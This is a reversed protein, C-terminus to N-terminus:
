VKQRLRLLQNNDNYNRKFFYTHMYYKHLFVMVAACCVRYHFVACGYAYFM